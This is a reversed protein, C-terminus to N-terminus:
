ELLNGRRYRTRNGVREKILIGQEAMYTMTDRATRESVGANEAVESASPTSDEILTSFLATKWAKDRQTGKAM